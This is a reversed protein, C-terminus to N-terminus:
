LVTVLASALRFVVGLATVATELRAAKAEYGASIINSKLANWIKSLNNEVSEASMQGAAFAVACSEATDALENIAPRFGVAIQSGVTRVQGALAAVAVKIAHQQATTM